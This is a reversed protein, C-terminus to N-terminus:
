RRRARYASRMASLRRGRWIAEERARRYRGVDLLVSIQWDTLQPLFHRMFEEASM